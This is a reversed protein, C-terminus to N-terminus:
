FATTTRRCRERAVTLADRGDSLTPFSGIESFYARGRSVCAEFAASDGEGGGAFVLLVLLGIAGVVIWMATKLPNKPGYQVEPAPKADAPVDRQCYRCVTAGAKVYELCHPCQKAGKGARHLSENRQNAKHISIWVLGALLGILFIEM